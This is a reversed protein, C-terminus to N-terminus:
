MSYTIYKVLMTFGSKRTRQIAKLVKLLTLKKSECTNACVAALYPCIYSWMKKSWIRYETSAFKSM